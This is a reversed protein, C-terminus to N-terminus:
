RSPPLAARVREAAVRRAEPAAAPDYGADALAAAPLRAGLAQWAAVRVGEEDDLLLDVAGELAFRRGDAAVRGLFALRRARDPSRVFATTVVETVGTREFGWRAAAALASTWRELYPDALLVPLRPAQPDLLRLFAAREADGVAGTPEPLAAIERALGARTVSPDTAVLALMLEATEAMKEARQELDLQRYRALLPRAAAVDGDACSPLRGVFAGLRAGAPTGAADHGRRREVAVTLLDRTREVWPYARRTAVLLDEAEACRGVRLLVEALLATAEPQGTGAPDVSEVEACRRALALARDRAEAAGSADGGAAAADARALADRTSADLLRREVIARRRALALDGIGQGMGVERYTELASQLNAYGQRRRAEAAAAARADGTAAARSALGTADLLYTDGLAEIARARLVARTQAHLPAFFEPSAFALEPSESPDDDTVVLGSLWLLTDSLYSTALGARPLPYAEPFPVDDTVVRRALPGPPNARVAEESSLSPDDLVARVRKGSAVWALAVAHARMYGAARMMRQVDRGRAVVTAADPKTTGVRGILVSSQEFFWLAGDPFVELFTRVLAAYLDVPMAHVPIWQALVGGERLRARALEYFERTYFPLAAPTYPMLPELTIVDLDPAHLLLARRGDDIRVSVRDDSPRGREDTAIVRGNVNEFHPALALVARSTEVIELRKVDAHAALAGATTGTGFAIVMAHEPNAAAFVPLHGLMRMYGYASGTAAAAFEDTYLTREAPPSDVVSATTTEDSRVAVIRRTSSRAGDPGRVVRSAEVLDRPTARAALLPAGFGLLLGAAIGGAALGRRTGSASAALFTGAAAALLGLGAWALLPGGPTVDAAEVSGVMLVVLPGAVGGLGNALAVRGTATGLRDPRADAAWRVTLPYVAGLLVAPAGLLLASGALACWRQAARPDQTSFALERVRRMTDEVAPLLLLGLVVAAGVLVLLVGVARGPRTGRALLPGVVLSGVALGALFVGLMAAFSAAFGEVFFVLIRVGAAELGLALFGSLAAVVLPLAPTPADPANVASSATPRRDLALAVLGVAAAVTAAYRLVGSVGVDFIGFFGAWLAGAVAGCTNIGYLFSARAGVRGHPPTVARLIAPFTAGLLFACPGVAVVVLALDLLVRLVGGGQAARVYAGELAGIGPLVVVAWGAAAVELVGYLGLPRSTRDARGGGWAGGAGLGALFVALVIASTASTSGLLLLLRRTFAVEYVLGAAGSVVYLLGAVLLSVSARAARVPDPGFPAIATSPTM